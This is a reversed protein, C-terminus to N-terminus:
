NRGADEEIPPVVGGADSGATPQLPPNSAGILRQQFEFTISTQFEPWRLETPLWQKVWNIIESTRGVLGASDASSIPRGGVKAVGEHVFSNRATKLNRFAEWLSPDEKLSHGALLRLLVDYQEETTPEKLWDGRENLWTWLTPPLQSKQALADLIQSIFVELSTYALVIASGFHPLAALADLYLSDWAPPKFDPSLSYINEWVGPNLGVLSYSFAIGGRGRILAPAIELESEDDNLYQLRWSPLSASFLRVQPARAVYRLRNLFSDVARVMVADSPDWAGNRSRDFSEKRFDIRLGNVVFAPSGNMRVVDPVDGPAPRDTRNPPFVSVQYGEDEYTYVKFETGDPVAIHFPLAIYLRALM